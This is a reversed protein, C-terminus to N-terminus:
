RARDGVRGHWGHGVVLAILPLLPLLALKASTPRVAQGDVEAAITAM